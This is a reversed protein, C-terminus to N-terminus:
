YGVRISLGGYGYGYTSPSGYLVPGYVPTAYPQYLMPVPVVRRAVPYPPLVTRAAVRRVPAVPRFYIGADAKETAICLGIAGLAAILLIRKFMIRKGKEKLDALLLTALHTPRSSEYQFPILANVTGFRCL